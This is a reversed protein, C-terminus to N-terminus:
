IVFIYEYIHDSTELNTIRRSIQCNAERDCRCYCTALKGFIEYNEAFHAQAAFNARDVSWILPDSFGFLKPKRM